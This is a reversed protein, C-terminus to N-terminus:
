TLYIVVAKAILFLFLITHSLAFSNHRPSIRVRHGSELSCLKTKWRILCYGPELFGEFNACHFREVCKGGSKQLFYLSFYFFSFSTYRLTLCYRLLFYLERLIIYFQRLLLCCGVYYTFSACLSSQGVMVTALDVQWWTVKALVSYFAHLTIDFASMLLPLVYAFTLTLASDITATLDHRNSNRKSNARLHPSSNLFYNGSLPM